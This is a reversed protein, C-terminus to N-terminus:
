AGRGRCQRQRRRAYPTGVVEECRGGGRYRGHTRRTYPMGTAEERIGDEVEAEGRGGIVGSSRPILMSRGRVNHDGDKAKDGGKDDEVETDGRGGRM